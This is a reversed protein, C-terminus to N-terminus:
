KGNKEKQAQRYSQVARNHSDLNTSFNHGGKGDAVFYLYHSKAPHAAAILSAKGPIAIPAPPLGNIVYTNYATPVDLDARTLSGKYNDGMGYIVTPDTQLRMGLRLRNIFVSAVKDREDNIATEKEIISAMTVMDAVTQYPLDPQRDKWVANVQRIMREHLRELLMVDTTNATYVWTDPYFWGEIPANKDLELAQAVTSPCDDVLTHKIWPAARLTALWDQLRLGEVFRIRFQAEKGSALLALLERVRMQPTLRYTGAKFKTLDPALTLLASFWPGGAIIHQDVLSQELAKRNTGVPLTFITEQNILLVSDAFRRVQWYGAAILLALVVVIVAIIKKKNM